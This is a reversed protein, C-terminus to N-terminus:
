GGIKTIKVNILGTRLLNKNYNKVKEILGSYRDLTSINKLLKMLIDVKWINEYAQKYYKEVKKIFKRFGVKIKFCRFCLIIV